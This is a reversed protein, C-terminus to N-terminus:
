SVGKPYRENLDLRDEISILHGALVTITGRSEMKTAEAVQAARTLEVAGNNLAAIIEAQPREDWVFISRGGNVYDRRAEPTIKIEYWAM